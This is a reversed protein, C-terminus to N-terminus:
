NSIRAAEYLEEMKPYKYESLTSLYKSLNNEVEYHNLIEQLFAITSKKYAKNAITEEFATTTFTSAFTKSFKLFASYNIDQITSFNQLVELGHVMNTIEESFELPVQHVVVNRISKTLGELASSIVTITKSIQTTLNLSNYLTYGIVTGTENETFASIIEKESPPVIGYKSMKPLHYTGKAIKVLEDAECLRQLTKYYAAESIRGALKEKYLKSAIILENEKFEALAEKVIPNSKM